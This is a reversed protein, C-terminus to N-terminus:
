PELLWPLPPAARSRGGTPVVCTMEGGSLAPDRKLKSITGDAKDM